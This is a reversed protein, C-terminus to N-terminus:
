RKGITIFHAPATIHQPRGIQSFTVTVTVGPQTVHVTGVMGPQRLLGALGPDSTARAKAWASLMAPDHLIRRLLGANVTIAHNKIYHQVAQAGAPTLERATGPGTLTFQAKVVVDSPDVWLNLSSVRPNDPENAILPNLPQLPVAAPTTARLREARAGNVTTHGDTVFRASPSLASLLTRPDPINLSAAAGAAAIHMWEAVFHPAPKRAIAPYHYAQGDVVRNISEGTRSISHSTRHIRTPMGPNTVDNWNVGGFTVQQVATSGGTATVIRARGSTMAAQSADAVQKLATVTLFTGTGAATGGIQSAVLAGTVGAAAVGAVAAVLRTRRRAPAPRVARETVAARAKIEDFTVPNATLKVYEEIQDPLDTTNM